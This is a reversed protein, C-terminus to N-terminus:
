ASSRPAEPQARAASRRPPGASTRPREADLLARFAAGAALGVEPDRTVLAAVIAGDILLGAQHSVADADRIGAEDLVQRIRALVQRKHGLALRRMRDDDKDHEGVANIFPCGYFRESRFWEVLLPFIRDLRERPTAEGADLGGLFWDRWARGERDLVAEVLAEKSGFLKYLTTKATGAAEVIADVGVSHFGRRCFLDTAAGLLRERPTTDPM